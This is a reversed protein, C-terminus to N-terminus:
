GAGAGGRCFASHQRRPLIRVGVFEPGKIDVVLMGLGIGSGKGM